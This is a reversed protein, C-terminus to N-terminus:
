RRHAPYEPEDAVLTPSLARKLLTYAEGKRVQSWDVRYVQWGLLQAENIKENDNRQGIPRNHRGSVWAGGDVELAILPDPFALDFRWKRTPHFRYEMAYEYGIEAYLRDAMARLM